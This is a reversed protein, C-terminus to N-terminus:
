AAPHRLFMKDVSANLVAFELRNRAGNMMSADNNDDIRGCQSTWRDFVRMTPRILLLRQQNQVSDAVDM